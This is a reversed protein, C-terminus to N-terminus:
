PPLLVQLRAALEAEALIEQAIRQPDPRYAGSQVAAEINRLRAARGAGAAQSAEAIAAAVRETQATSVRDAARSAERPERTTEAASGPLASIPSSEQVKM